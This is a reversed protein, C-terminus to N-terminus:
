KLKRCEIDNLPSDTKMIIKEIKPQLALAEKSLEKAEASVKSGNKEKLKIYKEIYKNSVCLSDLADISMKSKKGSAMLDLDDNLKLNLSNYTTNVAHMLFTAYSLLQDNTETVKNAENYAAKYLFKTYYLQNFQAYLSAESAQTVDAETIVDKKPTNAQSCAVTLLSMLIICLKSKM